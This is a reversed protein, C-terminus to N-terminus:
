VLGKRENKRKLPFRNKCTYTKRSTGQAEVFYNIAFASRTMKKGTAFNRLSETSVRSKFPQSATKWDRAALPCGREGFNGRRRTKVLLVLLNRRALHSIQSASLAVLVLAAM